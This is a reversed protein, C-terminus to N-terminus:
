DMDTKGTDFRCQYDDLETANRSKRQSIDPFSELLRETGGEGDLALEGTASHRAHEDRQVRGQITADHHLHQGRLQRRRDGDLAEIALDHQGRRQLMRV